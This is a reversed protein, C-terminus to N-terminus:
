LSAPNENEDLDEPVNPLLGNHQKVQGRRKRIADELQRKMSDFSDRLAVYVDENQVRSVVLEARPLTLDIRVNFPRGQHQHKQALEIVVRCAMLDPAFSELKQIHQRASAELAETPAMGLFQIKAPIKM